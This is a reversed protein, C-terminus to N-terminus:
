AYAVERLTKSRLLAYDRLPPAFDIRMISSKLVDNAYINWVSKPHLSLEKLFQEVRYRSVEIVKKADTWKPIELLSKLDLPAVWVREVDDWHFSRKLFTVNALNRHEFFCDDKVESTYEFGFSRFSETLSGQDIFKLSECVSILNDDGYAIVRVHDEFYKMNDVYYDRSPLFNDSGLSKRQM